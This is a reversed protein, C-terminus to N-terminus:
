FLKRIVKLSELLLSDASICDPLVYLNKFGVGKRPVTVGAVSKRYPEPIDDLPYTRRRPDDEDAVAGLERLFPIVNEIHNIPVRGACTKEGRSFVATIGVREYKETSGKYEAGVALTFLEDPGATGPICCVVERMEVPLASVPVQLAIRRELEPEIANLVVARSELTEDATQVGTVRKSRHLLAPWRNERRYAGGKRVVRDLLREALSAYGDVPAQPANALMFAFTDLRLASLPRRCFARSQVDFFTLLERSIKASVLYEQANRRKLLYASVRSKSAKILRIGLSQYIRAAKDGEQPFERRVEELTAEASSYITIRGRPLVVQYEGHMRLPIDSIGAEECLKRFPGGPEFGYGPMPVAPVIGGSIHLYASRGGPKDQTDILVVKKGSRTIREAAFLGALGTGLIAVDYKPM